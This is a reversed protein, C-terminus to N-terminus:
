ENLINLILVNYMIDENPKVLDLYGKSKYAESSPVYVLMRDGIKANILAKKLGPVVGHDELKLKFPKNDRYTNLFMPRSPTFAMSHFEVFNDESFVEKNEENEEFIWVKNGDIERSPKPKNLVKLRIFNDSNAPFLGEVAQEGRAMKAPLYIEVFDGVKLEQLAIDWGKTQMGFGVMFSVFPKKLLHNGDIVDDNDLRVKYDIEVVDGYEVREGDGHEFWKIQIGNEMKKLDVVEKEDDINSNSTKLSDNMLEPIDEGVIPDSKVGSPDCSVLLSTFLTIGLISKLNKM